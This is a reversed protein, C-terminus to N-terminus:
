GLSAALRGWTLVTGGWVLGAGFAGLFVKAGPPLRGSAAADALAIPLSAASTNAYRDIVDLVKLPDLQLRRGVAELIRRNAQHYAFIDVDAETLGAAALVEETVEAMMRVAHRFVAPGDMRIKREDRDLQILASESGASHHVAPGVQSTGEVACLVVAGAGDGFLMASQPDDPDLYRYLCDAGVVVVTGARRAEIMAAGMTLAAVFGVCADNLDIAAARIGLAHAVMPAAHPSMEEASTTAVLVTDVASPEIGADLLAARAAEAAFHDLREGPAAVHRVSTGTRRQLWEESVGLREAIAANHVVQDPVSSGVGVPAAGRVFHSPSHSTTM